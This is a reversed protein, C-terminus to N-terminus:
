PGGELELGPSALRRTRRAWQLNDCSTLSARTLSAARAELEARRESRAHHEEPRLVRAILEQVRQQATALGQLLAEREQEARVRETIDRIITILGM